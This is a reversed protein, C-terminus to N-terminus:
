HRVMFTGKLALIVDAALEEDTDADMPVPEVDDFSGESSQKKRGLAAHFSIPKYYVSQNHICQEVIQALERFAVAEQIHVDYSSWHDPTLQKEGARDLFHNVRDLIRAKRELEGVQRKMLRTRVTLTEVEAKLHRAKKYSYLGYHGCLLFLALACITIIYIGFRMSIERQHLLLDEGSVHSPECCRQM